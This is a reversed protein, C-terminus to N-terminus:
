LDLGGLVSISKPTLIPYRDKQWLGTTRRSKRQVVKKEVNKLTATEIKEINEKGNIIIEESDNPRTNYIIIIRDNYLIM